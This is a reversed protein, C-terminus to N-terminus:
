GIALHGIDKRASLIDHREDGTGRAETSEEEVPEGKGGRCGHYTEKRTAYDWLRRCLMMTRSKERLSIQCM